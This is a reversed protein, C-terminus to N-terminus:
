AFRTSSNPPASEPSCPSPRTRPGKMRWINASVSYSANRSLLRVKSGCPMKLGRLITSEGGSVEFRRNPPPYVVGFGAVHNSQESKPPKPPATSIHLPTPAHRLFSEPVIHGEYM